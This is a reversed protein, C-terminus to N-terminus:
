KKWFHPSFIVLVTYLELRGLLMLFSLFLKGLSPVFNYNQAPGVLGLGPGVNGLTAAVSTMASLIDLGFGTMIISSLMFIMMYIFFFQLINIVINEPIVKERIKLQIIMRPHIAKKLELAAQKILILIRGVKISGGTSGACGGVFMLTFLISKALLPWQDFDYTAYGTTTIISVVQFAAATIAEDLPMYSNTALIITIITISSLIIYSYLRFEDSKWFVKPTKNHLFSYYLAFNAGSLFMFIIIIWQITSNYYGISLNKTSFGGTALTGFTHCMADFLNMGFIWLLIIEIITFIVYTFWLIKATESIRPKIREAVPGPSEARFMQMGGVGISSLVAVFLVVIGMGGLWHTLSRWFLIGHPLVEIDTLVSAGTTTFGSMTEFIADAINTFTGSILYPLAGFISALVWSLSVIAFGEKYRIEGPKKIGKFLFLGVLFTIVSSIIFALLDNSAYYVSWALPLLMSIGIIMLIIGLTSFIVRFNM